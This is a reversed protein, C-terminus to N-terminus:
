ICGRVAHNPFHKDNFDIVFYPYPRGNSVWPLKWAFPSGKPKQAQLRITKEVNSICKRAELMHSSRDFAEKALWEKAGDIVILAERGQGANVMASLLTHMM